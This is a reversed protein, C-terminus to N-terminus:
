ITTGLEIETFVQSGYMFLHRMLKMLYNANREQM